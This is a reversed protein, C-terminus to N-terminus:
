CRAVVNQATQPTLGHRWCVSEVLARDLKLKAHITAFDVESVKLYHVERHHSFGMSQFLAKGGATVAMAVVGKKKARLAVLIAQLVLAAGTGRRSSSIVDVLLWSANIAPLRNNSLYAATLRSTSFAPAAVFNCATFAGVIQPQTESLDYAVFTFPKYGRLDPEVMVSLSAALAIDTDRSAGRDNKPLADMGEKLLSALPDETRLYVDHVDEGDEDEDGARFFRRLDNYSYKVLLLQLKYQALRLYLAVSRATNLSADTPSVPRHSM